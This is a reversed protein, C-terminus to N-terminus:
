LALGQVIAQNEIFLTGAFKLSVMWFLFAAAAALYFATRAFYGQLFYRKFGILLVSITASYTLAVVLDILYHEGFGWQPSYINNSCSVLAVICFICRKCRLM